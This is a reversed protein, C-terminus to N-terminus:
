LGNKSLNLNLFWNTSVEILRKFFILNNIHTILKKICAYSKHRTLGCHSCLCVINPNKTKSSAKDFGIGHKTSSQSKQISDYIISSKTRRMSHEVEMKTTHLKAQLDENRKIMSQLNNSLEKLKNQLYHNQKELNENEERPSAYDEMIINRKSCTSQYANILTYLLSELQRKSYSDLNEKIDHFSVHDHKDEEEKEEKEEEEEEEQGGGRGIEEESMNGMANLAKKRSLIVEQNTMWRNTPIYKYNKIDKAKESTSGKHELTWLPCFKIFHEPNGCKHYVQERSNEITKHPCRRQLVQGRKLM